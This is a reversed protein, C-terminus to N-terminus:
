PNFDFTWVGQNTDVAVEIVNCPVGPSKGTFLRTYTNGFNLRIPKWPRYEADKCNGRNVLIKKIVVSDVNSTIYIKSYSRGANSPGESLRIPAKEAYAFSTMLGLSLAFILKKM